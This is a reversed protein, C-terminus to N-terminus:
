LWRSTLWRSLNHGWRLKEAVQSKEPAEIANGKDTIDVQLWSISDFVKGWNKGAEILEMVDVISTLKVDAFVEDERNWSEDDVTEKNLVFDEQGM